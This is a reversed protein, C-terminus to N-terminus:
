FRFKLGVSYLSRDDHRGLTGDLQLGKAIDGRVGFQITPKSGEAGFWEIHPTVTGADREFAAGWTTTASQDAAKTSGFNLHLHNAGANCSFLGNVLAASTSAGSGTVRAVGFAVGGNCGHESSPTILWKLQAGTTTIRNTTDRALLAGLELGESVSYAPALNLSRNGEARAAWAEIHGEGKADTGADDISLPRGAPAPMGVCALLTATAAAAIRAFDPCGTRRTM